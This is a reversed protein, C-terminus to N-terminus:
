HVPEPQRGGDSVSPRRDVQYDHGPERRWASAFQGMVAKKDWLWIPRGFNERRYSVELLGLLTVATAPLRATETTIEPLAAPAVATESSGQRRNPSMDITRLLFDFPATPLSRKIGSAGNHWISLGGRWWRACLARMPPGPASAERSSSGIGPRMSPRLSHNRRNLESPV